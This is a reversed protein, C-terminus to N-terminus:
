TPVAERELSPKSSQLDLAADVVAAIVARVVCQQRREFDGVLAFSPVHPQLRRWARDRLDEPEIGRLEVARNTTLDLAAQHLAERVADAEGLGHHVCDFYAAGVRKRYIGAELHAQRADGNAPNATRLDKQGAIARMTKLFGEQPSPPYAGDSAVQPQGLLNEGPGVQASGSPKHHNSFIPTVGTVGKQASIDGKETESTARERRRFPSRRVGRETHIAYETAMGRGGKEHAVPELIGSDELRRLLRQVQRRSIGSKWALYAVGPFCKTGDDHAHDALTLLLYKEEKPLDLEWVGAM